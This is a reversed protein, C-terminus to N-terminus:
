GEHHDGGETWAEAPLVYARTVRGGLRVPRSTKSGDGPLLLGREILAKATVKADFGLCFVDRWTQRLIWWERDSGQGHVYGLRDIVPRANPDPTVPDFRGDGHRELLGRIQEIATRLLTMAAAIRMGAM